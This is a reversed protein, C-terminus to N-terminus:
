SSLARASRIYQIFADSDWRGLLRIQSNTYGLSAYYSAGGIRLSHSKYRAVQFGSFSILRSLHKSFFQRPIPTLTPFSFLPGPEHGRLSLYHTLHRVPCIQTLSQPQIPVDLPKLSQNHKFHTIAITIYSSTFSLQDMHLPIVKDETMTLEGIRMLGFFGVTIMAKLLARHYHHIVVQDIGEILAVLIGITIPLRPPSPPSVKTVGALLKQILTSSVPNPLAMLRHLYGISSTHSIISASAYGQTHLYSVFISLHPISVPLSITGVHSPNIERTCNVFLVWSRHYLKASSTAVSAQLLLRLNDAIPGLEM